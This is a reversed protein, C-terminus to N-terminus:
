YHIAAYARAAAVQLFRDEEPCWGSLKGGYVCGTDLGKFHPLDILGLQAWHGFVVTKAPHVCTFWPPDGARNLVAGNGDWTRIQMLIRPDMDAPDKRGPELGAHVLIIDPLELYLPWSSIFGVWEDREKGLSAPYDAHKPQKGAEMQRAAQLLAFDHNGLVAQAGLEKLRRLTGTVDPGKGMVDGVSFLRDRGPRFAFRALLADLEALCGHLDGVFLRRAPASANM